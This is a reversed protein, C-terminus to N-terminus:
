DKKEKFWIVNRQNEYSLLGTEADYYLRFELELGDKDECLLTYLRGKSNPAPKESVSKLRYHYSNGDAGGIIFSDASITVFCTQYRPDDSYWEGFIGHPLQQTKKASFVFFLVIGLCITAAVYLVPQALGRDKSSKM